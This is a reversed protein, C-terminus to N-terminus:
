ETDPWLAKRVAAIATENSLGPVVVYVARGSRLHLTVTGRAYTIADVQESDVLSVENAWQFEPQRAM